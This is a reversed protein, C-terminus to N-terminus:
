TNKMYEEMEQPSLPKKGQPVNNFSKNIIEDEFIRDKLYREPDKRYVKERSLVYSKTHKMITSLLNNDPNLKDWQKIANVKGSKKDYLNWWEEFQANIKTNTDKLTEKTSDIKSVQKPLSIDIKSVGTDIKSVPDIEATDNESINLDYVYGYKTDNQSILNLKILETIGSKIANTSLGTLLKLQSYSIRDSAKHWGITKRSIAIFLKVSGGSCKQMVEDIFYNSIQSYNNIKM